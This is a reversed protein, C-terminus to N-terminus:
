RSLCCSRSIPRGVFRSHLLYGASAVVEAHEPVRIELVLLTMAIAFIGDSLAELRGLGEARFRRSSEPDTSSNTM